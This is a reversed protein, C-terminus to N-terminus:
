SKRKRLTSRANRSVCAPLLTAAGEGAVMSVNMGDAGIHGARPGFEFAAYRGITFWDGSPNRTASGLACANAM